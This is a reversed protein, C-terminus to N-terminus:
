QPDPRRLIRWLLALTLLYAFAGYSLTARATAARDEWALGASALAHIMGWGGAVWLLALLLVREITATRAWVDQAILALGIGTVAMDYDYLYPSVLASTFCAMALTQHVPLGRRVAVAIGACAGLGAGSQVWLAVSPSLGLSHLAAYISTMRFLPYFDTRLANGAQRVGDLFAPWIGVGFVFTAFASSVLAIVFALALVRWRLAALAHVGLGIGLHPKIVLLGLPWGATTKGRLTAM